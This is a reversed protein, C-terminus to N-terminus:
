RPSTPARPGLADISHTQVVRAHPTVTAAANPAEPKEVPPGVPIPNDFEEDVGPATGAVCAALSCLLALGVLVRM